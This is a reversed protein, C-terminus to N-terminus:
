IVQKNAFVCVNSTPTDNDHLTHDGGDTVITGYLFALDSNDPHHLEVKARVAETSWLSSGLSYGSQLVVSVGGGGSGGGGGVVVFCRLYAKVLQLVSTFFSVASMNVVILIIM